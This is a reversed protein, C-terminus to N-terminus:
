NSTTYLIDSSSPLNPLLPAVATNGADQVANGTPLAPIINGYNDFSTTLGPLPVAQYSITRWNNASASQYSLSDTWRKMAGAAVGDADPEDDYDVLVSPTMMQIINGCVTIAYAPRRWEVQQDAGLAATNPITAPVPIVFWSGSEAYITADIEAAMNVKTGATAPDLSTKSTADDVLQFRVASLYYVPLRDDFDGAGDRTWAFVSQPNITTTPTQALAYVVRNDTSTDNAINWTPVKGYFDPDITIPDETQTIAATQYGFISGVNLLANLTTPNAAVLDNGFLLVSSTLPVRIVTPNTEENGTDIVGAALNVDTIALRRAAVGELPSPDTTLAPPAPTPLVLRWRNTKEDTYDTSLSDLRTRLESLRSSGDGTGSGTVNQLDLNDHNPNPTPDAVAGSKPALRIEFPGLAPNTTANTKTTLRRAGDDTIAPIAGPDEGGKVTFNVNKKQAAQSMAMGVTGTFPVRRALTDGGAAFKYVWSTGASAPNTTPDLEQTSPDTATGVTIHGKFYDTTSDPTPNDRILVIPPDCALKVKVKTNDAVSTLDLAPTFALTTAGIGSVTHWGDAPRGQVFIAVKDGLKFRSTDFTAAGSTVTGIVANKGIVTDVTGEPRAVFQTPNLVVNKKALLAIKGPLLVNTTLDHTVLPGEIYINNGSVVTIPTGSWTGRVRVNGEACIIGNFNAVTQTVLTTDTTGVTYTASITGDAATTIASIVLRNCRQPLANGNVDKWSIADSVGGGNDVADRLITITGATGDLIVQSGRPLFEWPSIWGRIGQAELGGALMPYIYDEGAVGPRGYCLRAATAGSPFTVPNVALNPATNGGSAVPFSKRQWLRQLESNTLPNGMFKEVDDTNNIYVGPGYGNNGATTAGTAKTRYAVMNIPAPKVTRPAIVPSVASNSTDIQTPTTADGTFAARFFQNSAAAPETGTMAATQNTADIISFAAGTNISIPGSSTVSNLGLQTSAYGTLPPRAAVIVREPVNLGNNFQSGNGVPQPTAMPFPIQTANVSIIPTPQTTGAPTAGQNGNEDLSTPSEFLSGVLAVKSNVGFASAVTPIKVLRLRISGAPTTADKTTVIGVVPTNVGDSVMLTSGLEAIRSSYTVRENGEGKSSYIAVDKYTEGINVALPAALTSVIPKQLDQDFATVFTGYSFTGGNWNTTKYLTRRSWAEPNKSSLGIVTIRLMFRKDGGDADDIANVGLLRSSVLFQPAQRSRRPDPYKVYGQGAWNMAQDLQSYYLNYDTDTPGPVGPTTGVLSADTLANWSDPNSAARLRATVFEVGKDANRSAEARDTENGVQRGNNGIVVLFASSLLVAFLMVLVALILAQGKRRSRAHVISPQLLTLM